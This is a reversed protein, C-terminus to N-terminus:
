IKIIALKDISGKISYRFTIVMCINEIYKGISDAFLTISLYICVCIYIYIYIYICVCMTGIINKFDTLDILFLLLLKVKDESIGERISKRESHLDTQSANNEEM